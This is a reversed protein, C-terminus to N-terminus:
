APATVLGEQYYRVPHRVGHTREYEAWAQEYLGIARGRIEEVDTATVGAARLRKALSSIAFDRLELGNVRLPEPIDRPDEFPLKRDPAVITRVAPELLEQVKHIIVRAAWESEAVRRRLALVGFGIHRSEDRAVATFGAAFGPMLGVRRLTRLLSRQGTVALYGEIVLHYTVVGEVWAVENAPERRVLDMAERLQHEFIKRFGETAGPSVAELAAHLGGGVGLVEAFFRQFFVTHRAEDAIQTALFIREDERPSAHLLPALTDTVAQEGIFFLTMTHQMVNRVSQPLTDWDAIDKTFSLDSVAWQQREWRQYLSSSDVDADLLRDMHAEVDGVSVAALEELGADEVRRVAEFEVDM